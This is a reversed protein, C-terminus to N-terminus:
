IDVVVYIDYRDSDKSPNIQMNSYTIAKIETGAQHKKLDFSEGWARVKVEFKKEDISIVKVCRGIFYPEANFDYLCKDMLNYILSKMDSGSAEFDMSYVREVSDIELAM